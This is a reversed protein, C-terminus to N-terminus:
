WLFLGRELVLLFAGQQFVPPKKSSASLILLSKVNGYRSIRWRSAYCAYCTKRGTKEGPDTLWSPLKVQEKPVAPWGSFLIM